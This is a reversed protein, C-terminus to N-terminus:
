VRERCSARGIKEIYYLYMINSVNSGTNKFISKKLEQMKLNNSGDNTICYLKYSKNNKKTISYTDTTEDYSIVKDASKIVRVVLFNQHGLESVNYDVSEGNELYPENLKNM